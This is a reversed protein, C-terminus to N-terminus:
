RRRYARRVMLSRTAQPRRGNREATTGAAPSPVRNRGVVLVTGLSSSGPRRCAPCRAPRRRPRRPRAGLLQQDDGRRALVRDGRVEGVGGLQLLVSAPGRCPRRQDRLDAPRVLQDRHPGDDLVLRLPRPCATPQASRRSRGRRAPREGHQQGVVQHQGGAHEVLIASTRSRARRCRATRTRCGARPSRAGVADEVDVVGVVLVDLPHVAHDLLGLRRPARGREGRGPAVQEVPRDEVREVPDRGPAPPSSCSVSATASSISSPCGTCTTTCRPPRCSRPLGPPSRARTRRSRARRGRTRGRGARRAPRGGPRSVRGHPRDVLLELPHQGGRHPGRRHPDRDGLRVPQPAGLLDDRLARQGPEVLRGDVAVRHAADVEGAGGRGLRHRQRHDPLDRGPERCGSRSCGPWATRTAVPRAAAWARRRRPARRTCRRRRRGARAHVPAHRRRREDAPDALVHLGTVDRHAASATIPAACTASSAATPRSLTSTCGRGRTDTIERRRRARRGPGCARAGPLDGVDARVRQGRGGALGAGLRVRAPARAAAVGAVSPAAMCSRSGNLSTITTQPATPPAAPASTRAASAPSPSRSVVRTAMCGPEACPKPRSPGSARASTGTGTTVRGGRQQQELHQHARQDPEREAAGVRVAARDRGPQGRRDGRTGPRRPKRRPRSSRSCAM